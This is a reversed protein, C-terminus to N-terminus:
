PILNQNKLGRHYQHSGLGAVKLRAASPNPQFYVTEPEQAPVSLEVSDTKLAESRQHSEYVGSDTGVGM